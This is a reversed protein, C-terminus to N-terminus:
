AILGNIELIALQQTEISQPLLNVDITYVRVDAEETSLSENYEKMESEYKEVADKHTERLKEIEKMFKKM